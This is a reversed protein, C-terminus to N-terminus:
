SLEAGCDQCHGGVVEDASYRPRMQGDCVPCAVPAGAKLGTWAIAMVDALTSADGWDLWLRLEQDAPDSVIGDHVAIASM